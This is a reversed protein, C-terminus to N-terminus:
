KGKEFNLQGMLEKLSEFETAGIDKLFEDTRIEWKKVDQDKKSFINKEDEERQWARLNSLLYISRAALEVLQDNNKIKLNM